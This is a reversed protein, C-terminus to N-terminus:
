QLVKKHELVGALAVRMKEVSVPKLVVGDMGIKILSEKSARDTNGTVAIILTKDHHKPFKDLVLRAVNYIDVDIFIVKHDETIVQLCEDVSGVATVDCGLHM